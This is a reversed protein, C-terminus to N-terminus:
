SDEEQVSPGSDEEPEPCSPTEQTRERRNVRNQARTVGGLVWEGIGIVAKAIAQDFLDNEEVSFRGLVYDTVEQDPHSPRGIGVRVRGFDGTGLNQMVSRIGKHGADGGGQRVRVRGLPLDVEDHVVLLDAPPIKYFGAVQRAATGALNMFTQPEFILLDEGRYEVRAVRADWRDRWTPRFSNAFAEVVVFGMNHRTGVYQPGPNGLGCVLKM